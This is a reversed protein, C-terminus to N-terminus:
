YEVVGDIRCFNYTAVITKGALIMVSILYSAETDGYKMFICVSSKTLFPILIFRKWKVLNEANKMARNKRM